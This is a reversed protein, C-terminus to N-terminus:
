VKCAESWLYLHKHKETIYINRQTCAFDEHAVFRPKQQKDWRATALLLLLFYFLIICLCWRSAICYLLFFPHMLILSPHCSQQTMDSLSHVKWYGNLTTLFIVSCSILALNLMETIIKLIAWSVSIEWEEYVEDQGSVLGALVATM